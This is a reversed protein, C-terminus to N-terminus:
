ELVRNGTDQGVRRHGIFGEKDRDAITAHGSEDAAVLHDARPLHGNGVARDGRRGEVDVGALRHGHALTRRHRDVIGGSRGAEGDAFREGIEGGRLDAIEAFHIERGVPHSRGRHGAVTGIEVGGDLGDAHFETRGEADRNRDALIRHAHASDPLVARDLLAHGGGHRENHRSERRDGIDPERERRLQLGARLGRSEARLWALGDALSRPRPLCRGRRSSGRAPLNRLGAGFGGSTSWGASRFFKQVRDLLEAAVALEEGIMIAGIAAQERGHDLNAKAPWVPTSRSIGCRCSGNEASKLSSSPATM